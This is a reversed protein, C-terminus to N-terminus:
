SAARRAKTRRPAVPEAPSDAQATARPKASAKRKAPLASALRPGGRKTRAAKLSAEDAPMAKLRQLAEEARFRIWWVSDNLLPEISACDKQSGLQGMGEVAKLRVRWDADRLAAILWPRVEARGLARLATMAAARVEADMDNASRTIASLAMPARSTGIAKLVMVQSNRPLGAALFAIALPLNAHVSAEVVKFLKLSNKGEPRQTLALTVELGPPRGIEIATRMAAVSIRFNPAAQLRELVRLTDPDPFMRLLEIAAIRSPEEGRLAARQYFLDLSAAKLLNVLRERGEPDLARSVDLATHLILDCNRRSRAGLDPPATEGKAYGLLGLTLRVSLAPLDRDTRKRVLRAAILAAMVGCSLAALAISTLWVAQLVGPM